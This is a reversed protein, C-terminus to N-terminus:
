YDGADAERVRAGCSSSCSWSLPMARVCLVILWHCAPPLECSDYARLVRQYGVEGGKIGQPLVFLEGIVSRRRARTILVTGCVNRPPFVPCRSALHLFQAKHLSFREYLRCVFRAVHLSHVRTGPTM